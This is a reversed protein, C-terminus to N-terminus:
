HHINTITLYKLPLDETPMLKVECESVKSVWTSVSVWTHSAELNIFVPLLPYLALILVTIFLSLIVQKIICNQVDLSVNHVFMM